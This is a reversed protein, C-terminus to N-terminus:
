LVILEMTVTLGRYTWWVLVIMSFPAVGQIFPKISIPLLILPFRQM